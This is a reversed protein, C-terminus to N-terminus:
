KWRRFALLSALGGLGAYALSAPEPVPSITMNDMVFQTGNEYPGPSIGGSSIFNVEDIDLYNFNILKPGTPNVTYTNDYILTTGVFGQVEVQLEIEFAATLYASNLNFSGASILAPNGGANFAVNNGSVLGKGYGSGAVSEGDQAALPIDLVWMNNWQLGEYGNPIPAEFPYPSGPLTATNLDDFTITQALIAPPCALSALILLLCIRTKKCSTSEM